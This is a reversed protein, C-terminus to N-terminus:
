LVIPTLFIIAVKFRLIKKGTQGVRLASHRECTKRGKCQQLVTFVFILGVLVGFKVVFSSLMKGLQTSPHLLLSISGPLKMNVVDFYM